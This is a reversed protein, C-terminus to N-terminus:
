KLFRIKAIYFISGYICGILFTISLLGAALLPDFAQVQFPNNLMHLKLIFELISQAWGMYILIIWLFHLSTLCVGGIISFHLMNLSPM